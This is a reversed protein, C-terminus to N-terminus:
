GGIVIVDKGGFEPPQARSAAVFKRGELTLLWDSGAVRYVGDPVEYIKGDFRDGEVTEYAGHRANEPLASCFNVNLARVIAEISGPVPEPLVSKKKSKDRNKAM